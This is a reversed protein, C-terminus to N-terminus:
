KEDSRDRQPEDLNGSMLRLQALLRKLEAASCGRLMQRGVAARQELLADFLTQGQATLQLARSRKDQAHPLRAIWGGEELESLTRAVLAKDAHTHGVLDKHKCLPRRGVYLLMRLAGPNLTCGWQLAAARMRSRYAHTLDHLADLLDAIPPLAPDM